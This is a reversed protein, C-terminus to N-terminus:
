EAKANKAALIAQKDLFEKTPNPEECVPKEDVEMMMTPPEVPYYTEGPLENKLGDGCYISQIRSNNYFSYSGLWWLSKVVVTGYNLSNKKSKTDIYNTKTDYSRIIWAPLGGRSSDDGQIPKLRKEWPDMEIEKKM